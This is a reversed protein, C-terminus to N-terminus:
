HEVYGSTASDIQNRVEASDIRRPQQQVSRQQVRQHMLRSILRKNMSEVVTRASSQVLIPPSLNAGYAQFRSCYM